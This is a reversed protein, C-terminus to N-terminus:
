RITLVHFAVDFSACVLSVRDRATSRALFNAGTGRNILSLNNENGEEHLAPLKNKGRGEKKKIRM